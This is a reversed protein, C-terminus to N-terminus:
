HSLNEILKLLDVKVESINKYNEEKGLLKKLFHSDESSIDLEEYWPRSKKGNSEYQSYYLFLLFDGLFYFDSQVNYKKLNTYTYRALGFDILQVKGNKLIVNPVRIDRHVINQSHLVSLIDVLQLGIDYIESLSFKHNKEFLIDEATQGEKYEMVYGSFDDTEIVEILKPIAPHNLKQLIELEYESKYGMKKLLKQKRQKLVFKQNNKQVLYCIGYTGEGLSTLITYEGVMNTPSYVKDRKLLASLM